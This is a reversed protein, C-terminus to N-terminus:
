SIVNGLEDDEALRRKKSKSSMADQSSVRSSAVNFGPSRQDDEVEFNELSVENQSILNDIEDITTSAAYRARKEKATEAHNGKARDKAWLQAMKSYNPIPTTMWKKAVPKSAIFPGWVEPEVIWMNLSDNWGFGSLGDKFIDYCKHFNKKLTKEFLTHPTNCWQVEKSLDGGNKKSIKGMIASAIFDRIIDGQKADDDDERPTPAVRDHHSHLVKEDVEDILSEDLDVGMLYNYLICCALIIENQTDVCYNPETTSAIIPFRKKLVGFAREITTRLSAHRLNFLEKANKPPHVSYEKLHYRVGWYPAILCSRNMYGTDVLYYKSSQLIELSVQTGDLQRLFQDELMIISRLVNHFHRSITEGSRCFFSMTHTTQNHALMHLFKGVQEEVM